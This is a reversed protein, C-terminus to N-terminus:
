RGEVRGARWAQALLLCGIVSFAILFSSAPLVYATRAAPFSTADIVALLALRVLVAGGCAAGIVWGAGGDRSRLALLYGALAPAVAIVTGCAYIWSLIMAIASRLGDTREEAQQEQLTPALGGVTEEFLRYNEPAGESVPRTTDSVEFRALFIAGDLGSELVSRVDIQARVPSLGTPVDGCRLVGSRCAAEVEDGLRRYFDQASGANAHNGTLAVADRLAFPFWGGAFDDCVALAQCGPAVWSQLPGDLPEKLLAATPSVAYVAERQADSVPVFPRVPGVEVSQWLGYARVFEGESFDTVLAAGYEAENKAAVASVLTASVIGAVVLAGAILVLSSRRDQLSMAAVQGKGTRLALVPLVFLLLLSPAMWIREERGLWYVGGVLGLLSGARIVYWTESIVGADPRPSRTLVWALAGFFLLCLSSYWSDRSIRVAGAGLYSPDLALLVFLTVATWRHRLVRDVVVALLGAAALHLAQNALLLPVGAVAALWM